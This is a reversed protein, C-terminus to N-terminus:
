ESLKRGQLDYIAKVENEGEIEEVGTTGEIRFNFASQNAGEIRLYCKNADCKVYGNGAGVFACNANYEDQMWYFKENGNYKVLLYVRAGAVPIATRKIKGQLLNSSVAAVDEDALDFALNLTTTVSDDIRHLLVATNKPINTEVPTLNVTKGDIGAAVYAEVGNPIKVAYPLYMTAWLNGNAISTTFSVAADEVEELYWDTSWGASQTKAVSQTFTTIGAADITVALNNEGSTLTLAGNAVGASLTYVAADETVAQWGLAATGLASAFTFGADGAGTCVWLDTNDNAAVTSFTLGTTSNVLYHNQYEAVVNSVYSKIRYAKGVEPLVLEVEPEVPANDYIVAGRNEALQMWASNATAAAVATVLNFVTQDDSVALQYNNADAALTTKYTTGKLVSGTVSRKAGDDTLTVGFVYTGPNAKVVVPTNKALVEGATAIATAEYEYHTGNLTIDDVAIDYVTVGSPLVANFALNLTAVGDQPVTYYYNLQVLDTVEDITWTSANGVSAGWGVICDNDDQAHMPDANGIKLTVQGDAIGAIKVVQAEAETGLHDADKGFSKVYLGTHLNKMKYEGQTNTTEFQFAALTKTAINNFNHYVLDEHDYNNHSPQVESYTHVYQGKCYGNTSASVIYYVKGPDATNYALVKNAARLAKYAAYCEDSASTNGAAELAAAATYAERYEKGGTYLGISTGGYINTGDTMTAKVDKLQYFRANDNEFVAEVFKFLSGADSSNSSGYFGTDAGYNGYDSMYNSSNGKTIKLNYYSDAQSVFIWEYAYGDAGAEVASIKTHGNSLDSAGLVKGDANYPHITVGNETGMFYFAYYSANAVSERELKVNKNDERYKLFANDGRKFNINYLVPNEEDTTLKVPIAAELLAKLTDYASQLETKAAQMEVATTGFDYVAQADSMADYGTAAQENTIGAELYSYVDATSTMYYLEFEGMHWYTREAAVKFRLYRYPQGCDFVASKFEKNTTQPLNSNETHIETYNQKDNSGMVTIADPFDNSCNTRTHYAFQMMTYMNDAGLDVEIYHYGEATSVSHWNSHFFNDNNGKVGDVLHHISGEATDANNTWLYNEANAYQTQLTIKNAKGVPNYT